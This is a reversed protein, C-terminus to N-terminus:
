VEHDPDDAAGILLSTRRQVLVLLLHLEKRSSHLRAPPPCAHKRKGTKGQRQAPHLSPFRIRSALGVPASAPTPCFNSGQTRTEHSNQGRSPCPVPPHIDDNANCPRPPHWSGPRAIPLNRTLPMASRIKEPAPFSPAFRCTVVRYRYCCYQYKPMPGSLIVPLSIDWFASKEKSPAKRPTISRYDSLPPRPHLNSAPCFIESGPRAQFSKAHHTGPSRGTIRALPYTPSLGKELGPPGGDM